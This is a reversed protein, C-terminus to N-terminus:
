ILDHGAVGYLKKNMNSIIQRINKQSTSSLHLWCIPVYSEQHPSQYGVQRHCSDTLSALQRSKRKSTRFNKDIAKKYQDFQKQTILTSSYTQKGRKFSLFYELKNHIRRQKLVFAQEGQPDFYLAWEQVDSKPASLTQPKSAYAWSTLLLISVLTPIFFYPSKTTNM